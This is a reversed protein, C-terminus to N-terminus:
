VVSLQQRNRQGANFKWELRSRHTGQGLQFYQGTAVTDQDFLHGTLKLSTGFPTSNAIRRCAGTLFEVSRPDPAAQLYDATSRRVPM